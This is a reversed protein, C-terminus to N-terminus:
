ASAEERDDPRPRARSVIPLFLLAALSLV